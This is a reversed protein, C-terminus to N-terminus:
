IGAHDWLHNRVIKGCGGSIKEIVQRLAEMKAKDDVKNPAAVAVDQMQVDDDDDQQREGQNNTGEHTEETPLLADSDDNKHKMGKQEDEDM